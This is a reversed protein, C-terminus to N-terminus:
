ANEDFEPVKVHYINYTRVTTLRPHGRKIMTDLSYFKKMENKILAGVHYQIRRAWIISADIDYFEAHEGIIPASITYTTKVPLATHVGLGGCILTQRYGMGRLLMLAV